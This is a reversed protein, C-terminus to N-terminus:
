NRSVGATPGSEAGFCAPWTTARPESLRPTGPYPTVTRLWLEANPEQLPARFVNLNFSLLANDDPTAAAGVASLSSAPLVASFRLSWTGALEATPEEFELEAPLRLDFRGDASVVRAELTILTPSGPAHALPFFGSCVEGPAGVQTITMTTYTDDLPAHVTVDHLEANIRAIAADAKPELAIPVSGGRSCRRGQPFVLLGCAGSGEITGRVGDAGLWLTLTSPKAEQTAESLGLQAALGPPLEAQLVAVDAAFAQLREIIVVDLAPDEFSLTLEVPLFIAGGCSLEEQAPGRAVLSVRMPKGQSAAADDLQADSRYALTSEHPGAILRSVDEASFSLEELTPWLCSGEMGTQGGAGEIRISRRQPDEPGSENHSTCALLAISLASALLSTRMLPM